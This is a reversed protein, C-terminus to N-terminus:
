CPMKRRVRRATLGALLTALLMLAPTDLTPVSVTTTTVPPVARPTSRLFWSYPNSGDLGGQYLAYTYDGATIPANLLEFAGSATVGNQVEVILIGDGVTAAGSGSVNAIDLRTVGTARAAAGDIVLRDSPSADDGLSANLRIVGSQGDYNGTVTLTADPAVDPLGVKVLGANSLSKVSQHNGRLDLTGGPQVIYDSRSSFANTVDAALTAATAITTAGEYLNANTMVTTGALVNVIGSADNDSIIAPAFIYNDSTHNFNLAAEGAESYFAINQTELTGPAAPAAGAKSGINVVGSANVMGAIALAKAKVAGGDAVTLTGNGQNGVWLADSIEWTGGSVAVTGGGGEKDGISGTASYVHGTPEITLTAAGLDGIILRGENNWTGAVTAASTRASEAGGIVGDSNRVVGKEGITMVGQSGPQFGISLTKSAGIGNWLGDIINVEGYSGDGHGVIREGNSDVWGGDDIILAGHGYHGITTSANTLWYGGNVSVTGVSGTESAVTSTGWVTLSGGPLINVMGTGNYGAYFNSSNGSVSVKGDAQINLTGTGAQGVLLDASPGAVSVEGDEVSLTGTSTPTSGIGLTTSANWPTSYTEGPFDVTTDIPLSPYTQAKTPTASLLAAAFATTTLFHWRRRRAVPDTAQTPYMLFRASAM